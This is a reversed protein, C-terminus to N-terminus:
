HRVSSLFRRLLDPDIPQDSNQAVQALAAALRKAYLGKTVPKGWDMSKSTDFLVSVHLDEEELFM